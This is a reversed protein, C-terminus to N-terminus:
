IFCHRSPNINLELDPLLTPPQGSSIYPCAATKQVCFNFNFGQLGATAKVNSNKPNRCDKAL